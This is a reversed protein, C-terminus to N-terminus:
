LNCQTFDLSVFRHVPVWLRYPQYEDSVFLVINNKLIINGKLASNDFKGRNDLQVQLM